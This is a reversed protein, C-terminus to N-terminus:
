ESKKKFIIPENIIKKFAILIENTIDVNEKNIFIHDFVFEYNCAIIYESPNSIKLVLSVGNDSYRHEIPKFNQVPEDMKIKLNIKKDFPSGIHSGQLLTEREVSEFIRPLFDIFLFRNVGDKIIKGNVALKGKTEFANDNNNIKLDSITQNGFVSEYHKKATANVKTKGVYKFERKLFNGSIGHYNAKFIGELLANNASADLTIEYNILNQQPTFSNVKFFAGGDSNIILISRNQLSQVPTEMFHIPDTPDLLIPKDAIYAICIVHNASSLSPFDCDSIHDYTAALAIDSRIGKYNLAESLFNSLDKCDGQKNTLVENAATPIFAGMGIEIAVYKMNNQVYNYLIKTIEIPDTVGKTLENIKQISAADLGRKREVKKLYWDNMYKREMGSYSAPIILTRMLPQKINRYIGFFSLPNPEIKKPIVEINWKTLNTSKVSDISLYNLSDKYITNHIFRFSDPVSIQYKLTDIENNSFFRLDSFYMLEKCQLTYTIRAEENPPVVILKVKRSAIYDLELNEENVENNKLLKFRKGKKTYVKIDSIKELETDYFIPYVITAESKKLAITINKVFSTDAKIFINEFRSKLAIDQAFVSTSIIFFLTFQTLKIISNNM